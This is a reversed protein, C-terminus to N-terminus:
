HRADDKSANTSQTAQPPLPAVEVIPAGVVRNRGSNKATYLAADARPIIEEPTEGEVREAVGASFTIVIHQDSHMFFQKTLKRQVREIVKIADIQATNPLIIIFEEGGYRALVDTTRKAEKIVNAFHALAEDGTTHGLKDNLQKFRDIDMMAISLETHHRDARSFERELAEEMGRRNLTGTLYDENAVENIYELVSTLEQIKQEAENIRTQSNSFEERTRQVTLGISRTDDLVSQLVSNLEDIGKISSLKKQHLEIKHHYDDTTETMDVLRAIFTSAMQKLLNQANSIAPKLNDQKHILEKLSSEANQLSLTTIPKSLVDNVIDIQGKLWQDDATLEAMNKVLLNLLDVLTKNIIEKNEMEAEFSFLISKLNNACQTLTQASLDKRLDIVLNQADQQSKPVDKLFPIVALDLTRTMMERLQILAQDRTPSLASDPQSSQHQTTAENPAIPKASDHENATEIAQATAESGWSRVLAQIKDALIDPDKAFNMLVRSLGQRKRSLTIGKHNTELQKLLTNILASWNANGSASPTPSSTFLKRFKIELGAWDQEKIALSIGKEAEAYQPTKKGANILVDKLIEYVSPAKNGVIENYKAAYNEPTPPLGEKVLQILTQRAIDAAALKNKPQM